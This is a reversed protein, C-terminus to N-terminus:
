HQTGPLWARTHTLRPTWSLAGVTEPRQAGARCHLVGPLLCVCGARRGGAIAGARTRARSAHAFGRQPAACCAANLLTRAPALLSVRGAAQVVRMAGGRGSVREESVSSAPSSRAGTTGDRASSTNKTELFALLSQGCLAVCTSCRTARPLAPGTAGPRRVLNAPYARSMAWCRGANGLMASVQQQTSGAVCAQTGPVARRARQVGGRLATAVPLSSKGSLAPCTM